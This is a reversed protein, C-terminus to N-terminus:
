TSEPRPLSVNVVVLAVVTVLYLQGSLGELVALAWGVRLTPVLDGYGVTSLTIFSFYMYDASDANTMSTFYPRGSVGSVGSAVSAFFMGLVVYICLAATVSQATVTLKRRFELGIAIPVLLLLAGGVFDSLGQPYRGASTAVLAAAVTVLVAVMAPYYLRHGVGARSLTAMVGAGQLLATVVRAWRVTPAIMAFTFAAALLLLVAGYRYVALRGPRRVPQLFASEPRVSVRVCTTASCAARPRGRV